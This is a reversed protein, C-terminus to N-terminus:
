PRATKIDLQPPQYVVEIPPSPKSKSRINLPSPHGVFRDGVVQPIENESM